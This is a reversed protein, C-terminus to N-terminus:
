KDLHVDLQNYPITIGNKDFAKKVDEHNLIANLLYPNKSILALARLAKGIKSM